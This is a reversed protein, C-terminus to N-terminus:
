WPADEQRTDPYHYTKRFTDSYSRKKPLTLPFDQGGRSGTVPRAKREYRNALQGPPPFPATIVSPSEKVTVDHAVPVGAPRKPRCPERKKQGIALAWAVQPAPSMHRLPISLALLRLSVLPRRQPSGASMFFLSEPFSSDHRGDLTYQNDHAAPQQQGQSHSARHCSRVLAGGGIRRGGSAARHGRHHSDVAKQFIEEDIEDLGGGKMAHALGREFHIILTPRGDIALELEAVVVAIARAM